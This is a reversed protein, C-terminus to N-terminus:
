ALRGRGRRERRRAARRSGCLRARQGPPVRPQRMATRSAEDADAMLSIARGRLPEWDTKQWAKSGGSWTTVIQDPWATECAMVCKEGEVVLVRGPESLRPLQFLPRNRKLGGPVWLDDGAPTYQSFTKRMGGAGDPGLDKRVVALVRNGEIDTYIHPLWFPQGSPLPRPEAPEPEPKPDPRRQIPPPPGSPKSIGLADRIAAFECSSFCKALIKGDKETISLSPDTDPHAPCLAMWGQGAKKPRKGLTELANIWEQIMIGGGCRFHPWLGTAATPRTISNALM